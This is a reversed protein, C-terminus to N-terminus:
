AAYIREGTSLTVRHPTPEVTVPYAWTVAGDSNRFLFTLHRELDDLIAIVKDLPLNTQRAIWDPTLPTGVRPLERVVLNRIAHHEPTMFALRAEDHKASQAVERQWILPPIPFLHRWLGLLLNTKMNRGNATPNM